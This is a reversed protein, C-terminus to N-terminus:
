TGDYPLLRYQQNMGGNYNFQVAQTGAATSANKVDIYQGSHRVRIHYTGGAKPVASVTGEDAPEFYWDPHENGEKRTYSQVPQGSTTSKPGNTLAKKDKTAKSTIQFSGDANPHLKWKQADTNNNGYIQIKEGEADSKNNLDLRYGSGCLPEFQM